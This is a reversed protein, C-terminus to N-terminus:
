TFVPLSKSIVRTEYQESVISFTKIIDFFIFIIKGTLSAGLIKSHNIQIFSSKLATLQIFTPIERVTHMFM